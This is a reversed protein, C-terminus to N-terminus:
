VEKSFLLIITKSGVRAKSMHLGPVALNCTGPTRVREAWYNLGAPLHVEFIAQPLPEEPHVHGVRKEAKRETATLYLTM